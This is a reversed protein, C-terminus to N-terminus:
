LAAARKTKSKKEAKAALAEYDLQNAAINQVSKRAGAYQIFTEHIFKIAESELLFMYEKCRERVYLIQM